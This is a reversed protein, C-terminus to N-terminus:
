TFEEASLMLKCCLCKTKISCFQPTKGELDELFNVWILIADKNYKGGKRGGLRRKRKRRM